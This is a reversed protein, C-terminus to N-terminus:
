EMTAGGSASLVLAKVQWPHRPAYLVAYMGGWSHGVVPWRAYGLAKRLAEIDAVMAELFITRASVDYLESRGMGRQDFLIVRRPGAEDALSRAPMAFHTSSVGPGGNLVLLPPGEGYGHWNLRVGDADVFGDEAPHDARAFTCALALLLLPLARSGHRM